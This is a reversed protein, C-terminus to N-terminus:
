EEEKLLGDIYQYIQERYKKYDDELFKPSLIVGKNGEYDELVRDCLWYPNLRVVYDDGDKDIDLTRDHQLFVRKRNWNGLLMNDYEETILSELSINTYPIHSCMLKCDITLLSFPMIKFLIKVAHLTLFTLIFPSTTKERIERLENFYYLDLRSFLAIIQKERPLARVEGYTLGGGDRIGNPPGFIISDPTKM